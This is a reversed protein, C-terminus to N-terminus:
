IGSNILAFTYFKVVSWYKITKKLSIQTYIFVTLLYITKITTQFHKCENIHVTSLWIWFCLIHIYNFSYLTYGIIYLRDINYSSILYLWNILHLKQIVKSNM